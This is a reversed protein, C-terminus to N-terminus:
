SILPRISIIIKRFGSADFSELSEWWGSPNDFTIAFDTCNYCRSDGPRCAKTAELSDDTVTRLTGCVSDMERADFRVRSRHLMPDMADHDRQRHEPSQRVGHLTGLYESDDLFTDNFSWDSFSVTRSPLSPVDVAYTSYHVSIDIILSRFTVVFSM